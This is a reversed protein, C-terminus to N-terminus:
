NYGLKSKLNKNLFVERSEFSSKYIANVIKLSPLGEYNNFIKKRRENDKLINKYFNIHGNVKSSNILKMTKSLQKEQDKSINSCKLTKIKSANFGDLVISGKTGLISLSGELDNPRTAITAEILGLKKPDKYKIISIATDEVKNKTNHAKITKAIVSIPMGSIWQLLDIHHSCQNAIVGGDYKWTGRWKALKFYKNDRSWRLRVTTLFIKGIKNKKIIDQAFVIAPNLRNQLVVHLKTKKKNCISIMKEADSVKLAIPKEVIIIKAFNVCQLFNKYHHGSPTLIAAIDFYEKKVLKNISTYKNVSQHLHLSNLKKKDPDCVAVLKIKKKKELYSIAKFHKLSVKGCGIVVINKM